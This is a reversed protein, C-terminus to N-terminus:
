NIKKVDSMPITDGADALMVGHVMMQGNVEEVGVCVYKEDWAEFFDGEKVINDEANEGPGTNKLAPDPEGLTLPVHEANEDKLVTVDDPFVAIGGYEETDCEYYDGVNVDCNFITGKAFRVGQVTGAKYCDITTNKNLQVKIPGHGLEEGAGEFADKRAKHYEQDSMGEANEGAGTNRLAADPGAGPLKNQLAEFILHDDKRM